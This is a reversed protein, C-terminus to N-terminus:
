AAVAAAMAREVIKVLLQLKQGDGPLEDGCEGCETAVISNTENCVGCPLTMKVKIGRKTAETVRDFLDALKTAAPPTPKRCKSCMTAVMSLTTQCTSCTMTTRVLTGELCRLRDLRDLVEFVSPRKSPDHVMCETALQRLWAPSADDVDPRLTGMCVRNLIALQSLPQGAYPVQLTCLETLIVGFSYMAAYNYSGDEALVEPATWLLTGAGQTMQSAYERTLGLDAVKIYTTSSLLVNPSKLDRHLLNNRRMDALANAIVWAVELATYEAAVSQGDRKKDLYGRLDGGDMFELVLQPKTTHQGLVALLQVVYPSKCLQMAEMEYQIAGAGAANLATKVAVPQNDFVGKYVAGFGGRGLVTSPDIVIDSAAVERLPQTSAAYIQQAFLHHGQKIATVLPTDGAQVKNRARTNVGRVGLLLRLLSRQGCRVAVHLPTEGASDVCSVDAGAALLLAVADDRGLCAALALPTVGDKERRNVDAGADLLFQVIDASEQNSKRWSSHGFFGSSACVSIHLPARGDTNVTNASAGHALLNRVGFVDGSAVAEVLQLAADLAAVTATHGNSNASERPTMATILDPGAESEWWVNSQRHIDAGAAILAKVIALHGAVAAVNIPTWGYEDPQNIDSGAAIFAKVVALHGMYSASCIPTWGNANPQNIDAGAAILAEVVAFHGKDAASYIPTWGAADPQNVDAGAAILAEVVALHSKGTALNLPTRQNENPQNIDAGAAILLEAVALHGQDAASYMPSWGNANPQNIDAGAKILAQVVALHSKMAALNIPTWGNANPQNIDAGAAILAEVVDFHDNCAASTIPTWVDANPRNIDAGAAILAEVVALHGNCAASNMPTWGDQVLPERATRSTLYVKSIQGIDVGAPILTEVVALHGKSAASNIPTLGDEQPQNIGAGAAILAQIVALHGNWAAANIATWGNANPQNIDAGAAILAEVVALHGNGTAAHIACPERLSPEYM